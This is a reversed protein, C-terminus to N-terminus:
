PCERSLCHGEEQRLAIVPCVHALRDGDRAGARGSCPVVSSTDSSAGGVRVSAAVLPRSHAGDGKRAQPSACTATGNGM